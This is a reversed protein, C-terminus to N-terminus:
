ARMAFLQPEPNVIVNFSYMHLDYMYIHMNTYVSNPNLPLRVCVDGTQCHLRFSFGHGSVQSRFGLNGQDLVEVGCGM